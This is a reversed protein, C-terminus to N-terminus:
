AKGQVKQINEIKGMVVLLSGAQLVHDQPPNYTFPATPSERVALILLDHARPFSCAELTRGVWPSGKELSIEGVRLVGDPSRLMQDLFAVTAPRILESALRLGGIHNPSVIADAGARRMKAEIHPHQGIAVIRIKSNLMRATMVVYLNDKDNPLAIIIGRARTINADVLNQDDTADGLITLINGLKGCAELNEPSRDILVVEWGCKLLEDVIYFGTDGGGCVICHGSLEKITKMMRRRRLMGTFHGEVVFATFASLSYLLIGVGFTLLIITYVRLVPHTNVDFVERYGVTSLTIVTMYLCDMFSERGQMILYYGVSGALIVCGIMAVIRPLPNKIEVM